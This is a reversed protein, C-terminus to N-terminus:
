NAIAFPQVLTGDAMDYHFLGTITSPDKTGVYSSQYCCLVSPLVMTLLQCYGTLTAICLRVNWVIM